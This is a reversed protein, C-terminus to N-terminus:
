PRDVPRRHVGRHSAPITGLDAFTDHNRWDHNFIEWGPYTEEFRGPESGMLRGIAEDSMYDHTGLAIVVRVDKPRDGLAEHILKSVKDVPAHRTGDPVVLTVRKGDFDYGRLQELM